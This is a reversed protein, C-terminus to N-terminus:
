PLGAFEREGSPVIGALLFGCGRRELGRALRQVTLDCAGPRAHWLHIECFSGTAHPRHRATTVATQVNLDAAALCRAHRREITLADAIQRTRESASEQTASPQKKPGGELAEVSATRRRRM